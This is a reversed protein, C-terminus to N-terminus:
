RLAKELREGGLGPAECYRKVVGFVSATGWEPTDFIKEGKETKTDKLAAVATAGELPLVEGDASLPDRAQLFEGYMYVVGDQETLVRFSQATNLRETLTVTRRGRPSPQPPHRANLEPSTIAYRKTNANYRITCPVETGDLAKIVFRNNDIDACLDEYGFVGGPTNVNDWGGLGFERLAEETLDLLINQPKEVKQRNSLRTAAM